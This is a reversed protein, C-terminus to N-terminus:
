SLGLRYRRVERRRIEGVVKVLMARAGRADLDDDLVKFQLGARVEMAGEPPKQPHRMRAELLLQKGSPVTLEVRLRDDCSVRPPVDGNARFTVGLGGVSLNRLLTVLENKSSPPERLDAHRGLRWIRIALESDETIAVRYDHRRQIIRIEEPRQLLIADVTAFATVHFQRERRLVAAAFIGRNGGAKFSVGAQRGTAMMEDIMGRASSSAEVWCGDPDDALFRSKHHTFRDGRLFSVVVGGNRAIAADLLHLNDDSMGTRAFLANVQM